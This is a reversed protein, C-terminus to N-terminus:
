DRAGHVAQISWQPGDDFRVLTLTGGARLELPTSTGEFDVNGGDAFFVSGGSARFVVSEGPFRSAEVIRIPIPAATLVVSRASGVSLTASPAMRRSLNRTTVPGSRTMSGSLSVAAGSDDVAAMDGFRGLFVNESGTVLSGNIARISYAEGDGVASNAFHCRDVMNQGSNSFLLASDLGEFHCGDFIVSEAADVYVALDAQQLTVGLFVHTHGTRNSVYRSSEDVAPDYADLQRCIKVNTGPHEGSAGFGDLRGNLWVTQNVQGSMLLSLSTESDNRRDLTVNTFTLFQIPDLADPGGGQLWLQAGDFDRVGVGRLNSHWLGAHQQGLSRRAHVHIGHQGANGAALLGIGEIEVFQVPGSDVQLVAAEGSGPVANIVSTEPGAGVLRTHSRLVLGDARYSGAPVFLILGNEAAYDIANQFLASEDVDGGTVGFDRVNAM